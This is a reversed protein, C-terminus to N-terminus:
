SVQHTALGPTARVPASAPPLLRHGSLHLAYLLASGNRRGPQEREGDRKPESRRRQCAGLVATRQNLVIAIRVFLNKAASLSQRDADCWGSDVSQYRCWPRPLRGTGSEVGAGQHDLEIAALGLPIKLNLRWVRDRRHAAGSPRDLDFRGLRRREDNSASDRHGTRVAAIRDNQVGALAHIHRATGSREGDFNPTLIPRASEQAAETLSAAAAALMRSRASRRARRPRDRM